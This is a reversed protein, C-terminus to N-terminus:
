LVVPPMVRWSPERHRDSAAALRRWADVRRAVLSRAVPGGGDISDDCGLESQFADRRHLVTLAATEDSTLGSVNEIRARTSAVVYLAAAFQGRAAARAAASEALARSVDAVQAAISRTAGGSSSLGGSSTLGGSSSLKGAAAARSRDRAVGEIVGPGSWDYADVFLGLPIHHAAVIARRAATATLGAAPAVSGLRDGVALLAAFAAGDSLAIDAAASELEADALALRAAGADSDDRFLCHRAAIAYAARVLPPRDSVAAFCEACRPFTAALARLPMDAAPTAVPDGGLHACPLVTYRVRWPTVMVGSEDWLRRRLTSGGADM